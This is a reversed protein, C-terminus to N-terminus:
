KMKGTIGCHNAATHFHNFFTIADYHSIDVQSESEDPQRGVLYHHGSENPANKMHNPKTAATRKDAASDM